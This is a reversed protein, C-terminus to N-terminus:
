RPPECKYTARPWYDVIARRFESFLNGDSIVQVPKAGSIIKLYENYRQFYDDYFELQEDTFAQLMESAYQDQRAVINTNMILSGPIFNVVEVGYKKM